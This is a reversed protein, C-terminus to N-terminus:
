TTRARRLGLAPGLILFALVVTAAQILGWPLAGTFTTEAHTMAPLASLAAISGCWWIPHHQVLRVSREPISFLGPTERVTGTADDTANIRLRTTTALAASAGVLMIIGGVIAGLRNPNSLRDLALALTVAWGTAAAGLARASITACRRVFARDDGRAASTRWIALARCAACAGAVVAVQFALVAAFFSVQTALVAQMPVAPHPQSKGAVILGAFVTAGATFAIVPARRMARAGTEANLQTALAPAAGFAEVAQAVADTPPDGLHERNTTADALHDRVEGLIRARDRANVHLCATLESIYADIETM